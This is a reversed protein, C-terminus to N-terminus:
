YTLKVHLDRHEQKRAARETRSEKYGVARKNRKDANMKARGDGNHKAFQIENDLAHGLEHRITQEVHPGTPNITIRHERIGYNTRCVGFHARAQQVSIKIPWKIGWEQGLAVVRDKHVGNITNERKYEKLDIWGRSMLYTIAQERSYARCIIRGREGTTPEVGIFTYATRRQRRQM